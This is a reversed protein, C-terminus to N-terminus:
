IATRESNDPSSVQSWHQDGSYQVYFFHMTNSCVMRFRALDIADMRFHRMALALPEISMTGGGDTLQKAIVELISIHHSMANAYEEFFPTTQCWFLM